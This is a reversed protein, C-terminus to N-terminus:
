RKREISRETWVNTKQDADGKIIASAQKVVNKRNTLIQSAQFGRGALSNSNIM